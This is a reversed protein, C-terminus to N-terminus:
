TQAKANLASPFRKAEALLSPSTLNHSAWGALVSLPSLSALRGNHNERSPRVRRVMLRSLPQM